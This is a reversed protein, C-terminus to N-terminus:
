KLFDMLTPQMIQAGASLAARQVSEETKLNMIVKDVDADENDSVIQTAITNQSDLRNKVMSVRNVRAGLEARTSLMDDMHQQIKPIYSAIVNASAGSQLDNKLNKLDQFLSKGFVTTPDTNVQIQTGNNVKIKIAKSNSSTTITGGTIDVPKTKTDTGNFIYDGAVQSNAVSAMQTNLQGVQKSIDNLQSADYTGNSAQVALENVKQMISTAEKLSDESTSLWKNATTINTQYQKINSLDAQYKLSMMAAVPDDSPKSFKKGTSLQNQYKSLREYSNSLNRLFDSTLMGQTVRM